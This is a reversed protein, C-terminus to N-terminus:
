SALRNEMEVLPVENKSSLDLSVGIPVDRRIFTMGLFRYESRMSQGLHLKCWILVIGKLLFSCRFQQDAQLSSCDSLCPM